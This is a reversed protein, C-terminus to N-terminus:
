ETEESCTSLYSINVVNKDVILDDCYEPNPTSETRKIGISDDKYKLLIDYSLGKLFFYWICNWFLDNYEKRFADIDLKTQYQKIVDNM